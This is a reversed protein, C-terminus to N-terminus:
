INGTHLWSKNEYKKLLEEKSMNCKANKILNEKSTVIRLNIPSAIIKPDIQERFGCAISYIHDLHFTKHDRKTNNPNILTIYEKYSQETLRIVERRYFIFQNLLSIDLPDRLGMTKSRSQRRRDFMKQKIEKPTNTYWSNLSKDMIEKCKLQKEENSLKNVWGFHIKREEKSLQKMWIMYSNYTKIKHKNKAEESLNKWWSKRHISVKKTFVEFKNKDAKLIKRFIIGGCKHSCTKRYGLAISVFITPKNCIKCIGETEHKIYLDYYTKPEMNHIHKIHKSLGVFNYYPEDCIICKIKSNTGLKEHRIREREAKYRKNQEIIWQKM